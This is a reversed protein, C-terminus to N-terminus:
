FVTKQEHQKQRWESIRKEVAEDGPREDSRIMCGGDYLEPNLSYDCWRCSKRNPFHVCGGKAKKASKRM